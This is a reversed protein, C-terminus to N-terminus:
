SINLYCNFWNKPKQLIMSLYIYYNMSTIIHEENLAKLLNALLGKVKNCIDIYM